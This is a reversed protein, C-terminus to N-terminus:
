GIYPIHCCLLNYTDRANTDSFLGYNDFQGLLTSRKKKLRVIGVAVLRVAKSM